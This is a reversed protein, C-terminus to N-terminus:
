GSFNGKRQRSILSFQTLSVNDDLAPMSIVLPDFFVTLDVIRQLINKQVWSTLIAPCEPSILQYSLTMTSTLSPYMSSFLVCTLGLFNM